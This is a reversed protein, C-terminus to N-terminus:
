SSSRRAGSDVADLKRTEARLREANRALFDAILALEAENYTDFLKALSKQTSTFRGRAFRVQESIAEVLVRRRDNADNVRRVFGKRELRDILNTVSAAALGAHQAIEGASLPGLRDLIGLTKYDTPHLGLLGVMTSHFLVTADSHERGVRALEALLAQRTNAPAPKAM